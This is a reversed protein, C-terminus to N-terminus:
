KARSIEFRRSTSEACYAAYIDPQEQKLKKSDIRNSVVTKWTIKRDGCWASENEGMEAKIQNILLMRREELAAIDRALADIERLDITPPLEISADPISSPYLRQLADSCKESGDVPPMTHSEVCQWFAHGAAIMSHIVEDDRSLMTCTFRNGGVLAAIYWTSFGTIAMYWQCQAQYALPVADDQWDDSLYASASKCELGARLGPAVIERDINALMWPHDPHQLIANRRRVKLGTVATFHHAIADEHVTGWYAPESPYEIGDVVYPARTEIPAQGTKEMWVDIQTRYRPTLGMIAAIDSGGIGDNRRQLWDERSMGVTSCLVNATM